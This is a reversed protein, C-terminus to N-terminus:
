TILCEARKQFPSAALIDFPQLNMELGRKKTARFNSKPLATLRIKDADKRVSLIM